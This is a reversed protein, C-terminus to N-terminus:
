GGDRLLKKPSKILAKWLAERTEVCCHFHEHAGDGHHRICGFWESNLGEWYLMDSRPFNKRMWTKIDDKQEQTFEDFHARIDVARVKPHDERVGHPGPGGMRAVDTITITKGWRDWVYHALACIMGFLRADVLAIDRFQIAQDASKFELGDLRMM